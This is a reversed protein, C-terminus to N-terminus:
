FSDIIPQLVHQRASSITTELLQFIPCKHQFALAAPHLLLLPFAVKRLLLGAAIAGAVVVRLLTTLGARSILSTILSLTLILTVVILHLTGVVLCRMPRCGVIGMHSAIDVVSRNTDSAELTTRKPVIGVGAGLLLHLISRL